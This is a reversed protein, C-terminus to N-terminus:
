ARSSKFMQGLNQHGRSARGERMPRATISVAGHAKLMLAGQWVAVRASGGLCITCCGGRTDPGDGGLRRWPHGVFASGQRCEDTGRCTCCAACCSAPPLKAIHAGTGPYGSTGRSGENTRWVEVGLMPWRSCGGGSGRRRPGIAAPVVATSVLAAFARASGACRSALETTLTPLPARARAPLASLISPPRVAARQLPRLVRRLRTDSHSRTRARSVQGRGGSTWVLNAGHLSARM